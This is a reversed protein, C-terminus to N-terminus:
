FPAPSLSSQDLIRSVPMTIEPLTNCGYHTGSPLTCLAKPNMNELINKSFLEPKGLWALRLSSDLIVVDKNYENVRYFSAYWQRFAARTANEETGGYHIAKAFASTIDAYGNQSRAAQWHQQSGAKRMSWAYLTAYAQADAERMFSLRAFNEANDFALPMFGRRSQDVHRFEHAIIIDEQEATLGRVLNVANYGPHFSGLREGKYTEYCVAIKQDHAQQYLYSALSHSDAFRRLAMRLKKQEPNLDHTDTHIAICSQQYDPVLERLNIAYGNFTNGIHPALPHLEASGTIISGLTLTTATLATSRLLTRVRSRWLSPSARKNTPM